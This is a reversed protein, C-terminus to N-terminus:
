VWNMDPPPLRTMVGNEKRHEGTTQHEKLLAALLPQAPEAGGTTIGGLGRWNKGGLGKYSLTDNWGSLDAPVCDRVVSERQEKCFPSFPKCRAELSPWTFITTSSRCLSIMRSVVVLTRRKPLLPVKCQFKLRTHGERLIGLGSMFALWEHSFRSSAEPNTKGIM